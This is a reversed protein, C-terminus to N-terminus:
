RITPRDRRGPVTRETDERLADAAAASAAAACVCRSGRVRGRLEAGAASKCDAAATPTGAVTTGDRDAVAGARDRRLAVNSRCHIGLADTAATTRSAATR